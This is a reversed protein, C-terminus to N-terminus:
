VKNLLEFWLNLGLLNIKQICQPVIESVESLHFHHPGQDYVDCLQLRLNHLLAMRPM